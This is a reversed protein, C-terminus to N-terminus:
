LSSYIKELSIIQNKGSFSNKITSFANIIIQERFKDNKLHNILPLIENINHPNYLFGNKKHQIIDTVGGLDTAFVPVKQYMSEIIARGFPEPKVSTHIFFKYDIKFIENSKKFGHFIFYEALQKEEILKYIYARYTEDLFDGYVHITHYQHLNNKLLLSIDILKDFGKWQLIRGMWLINFSNTEKKKTFILNSDFNIWNHILDIKKADVKLYDILNKKIAESIAIYKFPHNKYIRFYFPVNDEFKRQHQIYKVGCLRAAILVHFNALFRGNGHVISINNKKIINILNNIEKKRKFISLLQYPLTKSYNRIFNYFSSQKIKSKRTFEKSTFVNVNLVELENVVNPINYDLQFYVNYKNQDLLEILQIVSKVSGGYAGTSSPRGTEVFLINKKM